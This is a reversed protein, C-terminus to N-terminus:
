AKDELFVRGKYRLNNQRTLKPSVCMGNQCPIGKAKNFKAMQKLLDSSNQKGLVQFCIFMTTQNPTEKLFTRSSSFLCTPSQGLAFVILYKHITM